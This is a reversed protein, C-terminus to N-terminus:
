KEKFKINFKELYNTPDIYEIPVGYKDALSIELTVGSSIEWGPLKIILLKKSIKIFEEDLKAWYEFNIPLDYKMAIHHWASIPAFIIRGQKTLEVAILNSVETRFHLMFKNEHTYPLGLYEIESLHENSKIKNLIDDTIFKDAYTTM